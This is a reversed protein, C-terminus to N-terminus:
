EHIQRLVQNLQGAYCEIDPLVGFERIVKIEPRDSTVKLRHQLIMLTNEIGQHLDVSKFESEDLRSFNRLSLVIESIRDAGNKVSKLIKALDGM